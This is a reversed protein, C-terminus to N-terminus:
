EKIKTIKLASFLLYNNDGPPSVSADYEIAICPDEISTTHRVAVKQFQDPHFNLSALGTGSSSTIAINAEIPTKAEMELRYM